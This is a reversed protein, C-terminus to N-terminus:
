SNWDIIGDTDADTNANVEDAIEEGSPEVFEERRILAEVKAQNVQESFLGRGVEYDDPTVNGVMTVEFAEEATFGNLVAVVFATLGRVSPMLNSAQGELTATRLVRGMASVQKAAAITVKTNSAIIKAEIDATPAEVKVTFSHRDTLSTDMVKTGIFRGDPDGTGNTNDATIFIVGDAVPVKEGTEPITISRGKSELVQNFYVLDDPSARTIEDLLIVAHPQRIANTLMGDKWYTSGDPAAQYGGNIELRSMTGDFTLAYFPRGTISAFQRAASTKGSGAPGYFWGVFKGHTQYGGLMALVKAVLPDWQYHPDFDDADGADFIKVPIAPMDKLGFLEPASKDAEVNVAKVRNVPASASVAPATGDGAVPVEVIKEVVKPTRSATILEAIRGELEKFPLAMVAELEADVEVPKETITEPVAKPGQPINDVAVAPMASHIAPAKTGKPKGYDAPNIGVEVALETLQQASLLHIKVGDFQPLTKITNSLVSKLATRQESTYSYQNV